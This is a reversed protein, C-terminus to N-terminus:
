GKRTGRGSRRLSTVPCRFPGYVRCTKEGPRGKERRCELCGDRLRFTNRDRRSQPRSHVTGSVRYKDPEQGWKSRGRTTEQERSPGKLTVSPKVRKKTGTEALHTRYLRASRLVSPGSSKTTDRSEQALLLSPSPFGAKNLRARPTIVLVQKYRLPSM